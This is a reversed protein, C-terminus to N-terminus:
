ILKRKFIGNSKEINNIIKIMHFNSFAYATIGANLIKVNMIPAM